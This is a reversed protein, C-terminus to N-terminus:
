AVYTKTSGLTPPRHQRPEGRLRPASGYPGMAKGCKHGGTAATIRETLLQHLMAEMESLMKDEQSAFTAIAVGGQRKKEGGAGAM